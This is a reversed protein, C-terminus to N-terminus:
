HKFSRVGTFVMSIGLENAKDIVESDRMSGGPQIIASVGAEHAEEVGDSFPFFADSAMVSGKLREGGKHRAIFVSDVRSMQGAGIAVTQEIKTKPNYTAFVVANSKVHKVVKRAFLMAVIENPTPTVTTVVKLDHNTVVYQDADQVLVGGSVTKIDRDNPNLRLDGIALLRMNKKTELAKLAKEEFSPAAIIEVFLKNSVIHKAIAETCPRNMGIICGFASKPDVNYAIEFATNIEEASAVGCPNTHKIITVTPRSFDSVIKIAADVDLINNFSLEKNAQLLKANTVNPYHNAPDRFFAAKQHPNEGYRLKHSKEYHLNLLEVAGGKNKLYSAITEDYHTTKEFAKIALKRRTELCIGDENKLEDLILSYDKIATIVTVHKFNKAAARLLAVGGIDIEEIAEEETVGERNITQQFPYLNVVVMDIPQIHHKEADALHNKKSRDMLIGGHIKPQLTKVRGDMIEPFGTYDSIEINKIRAERLIKATGGTSLIEVGYNELSKAFEVLNTKDSVSILARKPKQINPM